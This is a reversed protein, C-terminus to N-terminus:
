EGPLAAACPQAADAFLGAAVFRGVAGAFFPFRCGAPNVKRSGVWWSGSM